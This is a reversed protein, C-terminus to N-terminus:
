MMSLFVLKFHTKESAPPENSLRKGATSYQTYFRANQTSTMMKYHFRCINVSFQLCFTVRKRSFTHIIIFTMYGYVNMRSSLTFSPM